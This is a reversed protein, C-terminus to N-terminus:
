RLPRLTSQPFSGEGDNEGGGGANYTCFSQYPTGDPTQSTGVRRCTEVRLPAVTELSPLASVDEEEEEEEEQTEHSEDDHQVRHLSYDLSWDSCALMRALSLVLSLM